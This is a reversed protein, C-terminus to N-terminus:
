VVTVYKKEVLANAVLRHVGKYKVDKKLDPFVGTGKVTVEDRWKHAKAGSAEFEELEADITAQDKYIM